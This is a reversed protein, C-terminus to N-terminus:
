GEESVPHRTFCSGLQPEPSTRWLAHPELRLHVEGSGCRNAAGSYALFGLGRDAVKVFSFSVQPYGVGFARLFLLKLKKSWAIGSAGSDTKKVSKPCSRLSCFRDEQNQDTGSGRMAWRLQSVQLGEIAVM